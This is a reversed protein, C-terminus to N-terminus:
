VFTFLDREDKNGTKMIARLDENLKVLMGAKINPLARMVASIRSRTIFQGGPQHPIGCYLGSIKLM